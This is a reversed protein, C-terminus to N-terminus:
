FSSKCSTDSLISLQKLNFNVNETIWHNESCASWISTPTRTAMLQVCPGSIQSPSLGIYRWYKCVSTLAACKPFHLSLISLSWPFNQSFSTFIMFCVCRNKGTVHAFIWIIIWCSEAHHCLHNVTDGDLVRVVVEPIFPVACLSVVGPISGLISYILYKCKFEKHCIIYFQVFISYYSKSSCDQTKRSILFGSCPQQVIM